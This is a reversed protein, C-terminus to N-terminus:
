RPPAPGAPSPAPPHKSLYLAQAQQLAYARIAKVDDASLLDKFSAMGADQLAGDLVIADYQSWVEPSPMRLDPVEGSSFM